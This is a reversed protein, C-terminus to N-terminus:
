ATRKQRGPRSVYAIMGTFTALWAAIALYVFVGAIRDLFPLRTAQGFQLTAMTYMGLPFVMGWLQPDYRVPNRGLVYRWVTLAILLPIWWSAASWFFVTLGSVIPIFHDLVPWIGARSILIAGALTTIAAAGMNIWYPPGFDAFGLRIFTLRYFILPMIALYLMCGIMFFALCLFQFEPAPAADAFLTGGLVVISQTAVAAILWAGNIGKALTPKRRRIMVATLFTYMVAAWLGFGLYLLVTGVWPADTVIVTATGLVCTGAVVTFFGPGRQHNSMDFILRRSYRTLRILTLIWLVLYACWSIALLPLAIWGLGLRHCATAIVGTAMVLAFYGPFLERAASLTLRVLQSGRQSPLVKM